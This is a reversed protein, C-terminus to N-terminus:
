TSDTLGKKLTINSYTIRGPLKHSYDNQGGEKYEFIEMSAQMGSCEQFYAHVVGTIEVAFDFGIYPDAVDGPQPGQADTM